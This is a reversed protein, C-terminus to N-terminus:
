EHETISTMAIPALPKRAPATRTQHGFNILWPHLYLSVFIILNGLHGFQAQGSNDAAKRETM